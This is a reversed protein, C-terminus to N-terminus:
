RSPTLSLVCSQPGCACTSDPSAHSPVSLAKDTHALNPHAM